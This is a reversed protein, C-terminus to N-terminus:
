KFYYINPIDFVQAKAGDRATLLLVEEEDDDWWRPGSNGPYYLEAQVNEILFPDGYVFNYEEPKNFRNKRIRDGCNNCFSIRRHDGKIDKPRRSENMQIDPKSKNCLDCLTETALRRIAETIDTTDIGEITQNSDAGTLKRIPFGDHAILSVNIWHFTKGVGKTDILAFSKEKIPGSYLKLTGWRVVEDDDVIVVEEGDKFCSYFLDWATM